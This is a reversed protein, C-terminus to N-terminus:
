RKAPQLVENIPLQGCQGWKLYTKMSVEDDGNVTSISVM